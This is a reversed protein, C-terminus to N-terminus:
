KKVGRVIDDELLGDAQLMSEFVEIEANTDTIDSNYLHNLENEFAIEINNVLEEVRKELEKQEKSTLGSFSNYKKIIKLTVPLYYSLFHHFNSIKKPNSELKTVIKKSLIAIEELKEKIITNKLQRSMIKIQEIMKKSEQLLATDDLKTLEIEPEAKKMILNGAIFATTASILSPVIGLNLALYPIAFFTGGLIGPAIYKKM